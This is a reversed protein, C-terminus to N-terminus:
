FLNIITKFFKGRFIYNCYFEFKSEGYYRVNEVIGQINDYSYAGNQSSDNSVHRNDGLVFIENEKVVFKGEDNFLEPKNIKLNDFRQKTKDMGDQIQDVSANYRLYIYNEQLIEGNRELKYTDSYEVIDIIDGPLGIVRKIVIENDLDIVIIDGYEYDHDYKNVYATDSKHAGKINLNPQMSTGVVECEITVLSFMIVIFSLIVCYVFILNSVLNLIVKDTQQNKNFNFFTKM